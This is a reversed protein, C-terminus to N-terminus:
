KIPAPVNVPVAVPATAAPGVPASQLTIEAAKFEKLDKINKDAAVVNIQMGTKIDAVSAEKKDYPIPPMIASGAATPVQGPKAMTNKLQEQMKKNFDAMEKQNMPLLRDDEFNVYFIAELPTGEALLEHIFQYLFYTKGSRRMGIAVKIMKDAVPFSFRRPISNQTEQLIAHFDELLTELLPM